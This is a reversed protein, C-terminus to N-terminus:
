KQAADAYLGKKILSQGLASKHELRQKKHEELGEEGDIRKVASDSRTRAFSIQQPINALLGLSHINASIGGLLVRVSIGHISHLSTTSIAAEARAGGAEGDRRLM